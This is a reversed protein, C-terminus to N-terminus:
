IRGGHPTKLVLPDTSKKARRPKKELEHRLEAEAMLWHETDRGRPKGEREWIQYAREAIEHHTINVKGDGSPM